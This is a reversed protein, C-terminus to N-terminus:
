IDVVERLTELARKLVDLSISGMAVRLAPPVHTTTAFPEANTVRVGKRELEAVVTEARLGEPLRLWLYYSAPHTVVDCHNLIQRALDQRQRADLRKQEELNDVEGSDIWRCALAVTLSPTSWTSVRIAQELVPMMAKPAVIFGIRLGSAISKSLGSIYLTRQPALTFLPKPAPEALFAYAGDEIILFDYREALQVLRERDAISMVTGLPNHMTPMSYIARVPRRKCLAELADLDTHGAIQPLAELDLRHAQALTKLGPYTLADLALIDGPQLLAMLTVALGQQAGNVILVQDAGVRIERNRLHRAATQREHVRGGQPASHLLADIDGSAAIARLGERLLEDQGPVSPYNFTLDVMGVGLPQQELGLGRPLSTDRVFTGRGTEGVVLGIAELENYVRLATALAIRENQMLARITPLQTAPPLEGSRIKGAFEDVLRKYRIRTM